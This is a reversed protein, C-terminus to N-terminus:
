GKTNEYKENKLVWDIINNNYDSDNIKDIDEIYSLRERIKREYHRFMAFVERTRFFFRSPSINPENTDFVFM